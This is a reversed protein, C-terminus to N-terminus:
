CIVSSNGCLHLFSSVSMHSLPNATCLNFAQLDILWSPHMDLRSIYDSVINDCGRLFKATLYFNNTAALWFLERLIDMCAASRVTGKNIAQVSCVNDCHIVVHRNVWDKAWRKAAILVTCLEKVNIHENAYSPLDIQWNVYFWDNNMAAGGGATCADSTGIAAPM